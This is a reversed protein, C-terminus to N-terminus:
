VARVAVQPALRRIDAPRGLACGPVLLAAGAAAMAWRLAEPTPRGSELAWVLGALFSDGAGQSSIPRLPPPAAMWAGDQTVVLAGEAGLSIAVIRAAGGGVLDRGAALRDAALPLPAGVLAELEARNPKVLWVGAALGLSLPAGAADLALRAGARRAARALRAYSEAPAGPPLSGSAIIVAPRLALAEGVLRRRDAATLRPGPMVFRYQRGGAREVATFDERTEGAIGVARTDLAEGRLLAELRQGTEGGAAFVAVADAGLRRIVRAVNIGGGGPDRRPSTCRLKEDPTVRDVEVSLDVAPNFTLTVIPGRDGSAATL